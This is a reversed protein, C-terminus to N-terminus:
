HVDFYITFPHEDVWIHYWLDQGMAVDRKDKTQSPDFIGAAGSALMHVEGAVYHFVTPMVFSNCVRQYNSMATSFPNVMAMSITPKGM